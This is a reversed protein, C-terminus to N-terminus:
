TQYRSDSDGAAATVVGVLVSFLLANAPNQLNFDVVSHVLMAFVAAAAAISSWRPRTAIQELVPRLIRRVFVILAWGLLAAGVLGVESLVQLYDNHAQSWYMWEGKRQYFPFSWEFTGLGTGTIPYDRVLSLTRAWAEMRQTSSPNIVGSVIPTAEGEMAGPGLSGLLGVVIGVVAAGVALVPLAWRLRKALLLFVLGSGLALWGGVSGTLALGAIGFATIAALCMLRPLAWGRDLIADRLGALDLKGNKTCILALALGVAVLVGMEVYGALQNPNVFPGLPRTGSPRDRIWLIKDNWTLYQLVAIMGLIGAWGSISWLLRYRSVASRALYAGALFFM